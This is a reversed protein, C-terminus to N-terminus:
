NWSKTNFPLIGINDAEQKYYAVKKDFKLADPSVPTAQAAAQEDHKSQPPKQGYCNVGFRLEPNDFFGGNMGPRGCAMRQDEPGKQLKEYTDDSTPYLAM